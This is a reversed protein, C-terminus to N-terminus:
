SISIHQQYECNWEVKSPVIDGFENWIKVEQDPDCQELLAILESVIM